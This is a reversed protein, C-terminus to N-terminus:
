LEQVLKTICEIELNKVKKLTEIASEILSAKKTMSFKLIINRLLLATNYLSSFKDKLASHHLYKEQYLYNCLHMLLMKHEALIAFIKYDIIHDINNKVLNLSFLVSDYVELNYFVYSKIAYNLEHATGDVDFYEIGKYKEGKLYSCLIAKITSIDISDEAQDIYKLLYHGQWWFKNDELMRFGQDLEYFSVTSFSFKGNRFFDATYFLENSTDFGYIFIPHPFSYMKYSSYSSVYYGDIVVCMYEQNALKKLCYEIFLHNDLVHNKNKSVKIFPCSTLGYINIYFDFYQELVYYIQLYNKFLWPLYKDNQSIIPLFATHHAYSTIIPYKVPLRQEM